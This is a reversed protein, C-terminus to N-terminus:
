PFGNPVIIFVKLQVVHQKFKSWEAVAQGRFWSWEGWM